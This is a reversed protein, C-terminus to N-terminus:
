PYDDNFTLIDKSKVAKEDIFGSYYLLYLVINYSLLIGIIFTSFYDTFFTFCACLYGFRGLYYKIIGLYNNKKSDFSSEFIFSSCLYTLYAIIIIIFTGPIYGFYWFIVPYWFFTGTTGCLLLNIM